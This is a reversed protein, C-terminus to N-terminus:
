WMTKVLPQEHLLLQPGLKDTRLAVIGVLVLVKSRRSRMPAASRWENALPDFREVSCLETLDDQGGVAYIKGQFAACGLNERCTRLPPCPTWRDETPDYREVSYPCFM